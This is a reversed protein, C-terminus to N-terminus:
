AYSGRGSSVMRDSALTYPRETIGAGPLSHAITCASAFCRVNTGTGDVFLLVGPAGPEFMSPSVPSVATFSRPHDHRSALCDVDSVADTLRGQVGGLHHM